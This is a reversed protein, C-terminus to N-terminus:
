IKGPIYIEFYRILAANDLRIYKDLKSRFPEDFSTVKSSKKFEKLIEREGNDFV